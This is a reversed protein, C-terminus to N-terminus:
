APGPYPPEHKGFSVNASIRVACWTSSCTWRWWPMWGPRGNATPPGEYFVWLPGDPHLALQRGVVDRERWRELIARELDPFSVKPDVPEFM